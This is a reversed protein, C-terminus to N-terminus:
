SKKVMISVGNSIPLLLKTYNEEAEMTNLFELVGRGKETQCEDNLVDGNFFSDDVVFIGGPRLLPDIMKFYDAYKEKNGDLFVLDFFSDKDFQRLCNFADGEVLKIKSSVDNKIFNKQAISSFHDFKEITVVEGDDPLTEAMVISTLGIFSGVELVRKAGSLQILIRLLQYVMPAAGLDELTFMSTKELDYQEDPNKLGSVRVITKYMNNILQETDGMFLDSYAPQTALMKDKFKIKKM